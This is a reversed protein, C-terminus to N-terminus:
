HNYNLIRYIVFKNLLNKNVLWYPYEQLSKEKFFFQM